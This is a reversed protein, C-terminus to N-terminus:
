RIIDKKKTDHTIKQIYFNQNKLSQPTIKPKMFDRREPVYPEIKNTVEKKPLVEPEKNNNEMKLKISKGEM